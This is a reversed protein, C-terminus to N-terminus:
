YGNCDGFEQVPVMYRARAKDRAVEDLTPLKGAVKVIGTGNPDLEVTLAGFHFITDQM